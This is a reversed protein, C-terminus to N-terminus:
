KNMNLFIIDKIISIGEFLEVDKKLLKVFNTRRTKEVKLLEKDKNTNNVNLKDIFEFTYNDNGVEVKKIKALKAKIYAREKEIDKINLSQKTNKKRRSLEENYSKLEKFYENKSIRKLSKSKLQNLNVSIKDYKKFSAKSITDWKLPHDLYREGIEFSDYIGPLIIDPIVGKYQNSGGSIRYFKKITMKLAGPKKLDEYKGSIIKNLDLFMQVTGKGFSHSDGVIVARKYDQLAAAMIESASASMTNILIILPGDYQIDADPDNLVEKGTLRGQVQVIPGDKIFLGSIKVADTLAGGRNNRLDFIIGDVNKSKLKQLEKKVDDYSNRGTKGFFDNYFSKLSVYGIKKKSNKDDIIISKAFTEELVVIDRIIPIEMIRGDPKKVTLRILTGKKGRIIKVADPLEMGVIDVAEADGQAVKVIKDEPGLQKQKWAPGGPIIEVVKVFDNEQTLLAGIGELSGAMEINFNQKDKPPFYSTHPDFVSLISNLYKSFVNKESSKKILKLIRGTSKLTEKRAKLRLLKDSLKKKKKKNNEARLRIYRVIIRYKLIKQWYEKLQNINKSYLRKESDTEIYDKKTYDIKKGLLDPYFKIVQDIRKKKLDFALKMIQTKGTKLDDKLLDINRRLMDVDSQLLFRKDFDLLKIFESFSEETFTTDLVKGSYHWNELSKIILRSLRGKNTVNNTKAQSLYNSSIYFLSLLIIVLGFRSRKGM